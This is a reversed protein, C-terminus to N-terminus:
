AGTPALDDRRDITHGIAFPENREDVDRCREHGPREAGLPIESGRRPVVDQDRELAEDGEDGVESPSRDRHRAALTDGLALFEAHEPNRAVRQCWVEVEVDHVPRVEGAGLDHREAHARELVADLASPHGGAVLM